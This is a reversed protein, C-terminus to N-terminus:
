MIPEVVSKDPKENKKPTTVCKLKNEKRGSVKLDEQRKKNIFPHFKLTRMKMMNQSAGALNSMEKEDNSTIDTGSETRKKM